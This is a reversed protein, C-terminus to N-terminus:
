TPSIDQAPADGALKGRLGEFKGFLNDSQTHVAQGFVDAHEMLTAKCAAVLTGCKKINDAFSKCVSADLKQKKKVRELEGALRKVDDTSSQAANPTHRVQLAESTTTGQSGRNGTQMIEVRYTTGLVRDVRCDDDNSLTQIAVPDFGKHAWVQLPLFKGGNQFFREEKNENVTSFTALANRIEEASCCTNVKQWLEHKQEDPMTLFSTVPQKYRYIKTM